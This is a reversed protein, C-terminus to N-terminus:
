QGWLIGITAASQEARCLPALLAQLSKIEALDDGLHGDWAVAWISGVCACSGSGQAMAEAM